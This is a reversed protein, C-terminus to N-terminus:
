ENKNVEKIRLRYIAERIIDKVEALEWEEIDEAICFERLSIIKKIKDRADYGKEEWEPYHYSQEIKKHKIGQKIGEIAVNDKLLAYEGWPCTAICECDGIKLGLYKDELDSKLTIFKENNIQEIIAPNFGFTRFYAILKCRKNTKHFKFSGEPLIKKLVKWGVPLYSIFSNDKELIKILREPLENIIAEYVTAHGSLVLPKNKGLEYGTIFRKIEDIRLPNLIYALIGQKLRIVLTYNILNNLAKYVGSTTSKTKKSLYKQNYPFGEDLLIKLIDCELPSLALKEWSIKWKNKFFPCM